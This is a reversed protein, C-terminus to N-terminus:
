LQDILTRQGEVRRDEVEQSQLTRRDGSLDIDEMQQSMGRTDPIITILFGPLDIFIQPLGPGIIRYGLGGM